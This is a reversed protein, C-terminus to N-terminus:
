LFNVVNQLALEKTNIIIMQKLFLEHFLLVIELRSGRSSKFLFLFRTKILNGSFSLGSFSTNSILNCFKSYTRLLQSAAVM